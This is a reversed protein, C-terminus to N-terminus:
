LRYQTREVKIPFKKDIYEQVKQTLDQVTLSEGVKGQSGGIEEAAKAEKLHTAKLHPVYTTLFGALMLRICYDLDERGWFQSDENFYGIIEVSRRPIVRCGSVAGKKIGVEVGGMKIVEYGKEELSIGTIGIRPLTLIELAREFWGEPLVLGADVIVVPDGKALALYQNKAAAGSLSTPNFVVTAKQKLLWDRVSKKPREAIFIFEHNVEKLLPTAKHIKKVSQKLHSLSNSIIMGFSLFSLPERPERSVYNHYCRRDYYFPREGQSYAMLLQGFTKGVEFSDVEAELAGKVKRAYLNPFSYNTLLAANLRATYDVREWGPFSGDEKFFGILDFARRSILFCGDLFNASMQGSAVGKKGAKGGQSEEIPITVAGIEPVLLYKLPEILLDPLLVDSGLFVIPDGQSLALGQNFSAAQGLDTPNVIVKYGEELLPQWAKQKEVDTVFIIEFSRDVSHKLSEVFSNIQDFPPKLYVVYSLPVHRGIDEIHVM